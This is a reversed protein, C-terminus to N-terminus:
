KGARGAFFDHDPDEILPARRQRDVGQAHHWALVLPQLSQEVGAIVNAGTYTHREGRAPHEVGVECACKSALIFDSRRHALSKGILIESLGYDISTDIYNVGRDVLDNLFRAVFAESLDRARPAGSLEMAGYGMRSVLLGTAGFPRAGGALQESAM